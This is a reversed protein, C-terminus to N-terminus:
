RNDGSGHLTKKHKREALKELNKRAVCSLPIHLESAVAAATWLVDGLEKILEERREMTLMGHDDRMIKSTKDAVEGAEGALALVAYNLNKGQDPYIATLMAAKQYENLNM